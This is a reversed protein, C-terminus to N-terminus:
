LVNPSLIPDSRFKFPMGAASNHLRSDFNLAIKYWDDKEIM